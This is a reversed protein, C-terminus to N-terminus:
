TTMRFIRDCIRQMRLCPEEKLDCDWIGNNCEQHMWRRKEHLRGKPTKRVVSVKGPRKCICGKHPELIAYHMM